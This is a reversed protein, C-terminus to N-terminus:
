PHHLAHAAGLSAASHYPDGGSLRPQLAREGVQLVRDGGAGIELCRNTDALIRSGDRTEYVMDGVSQMESGDQRRVDCGAVYDLGAVLDDSLKVGPQCLGGREAIPVGRHKVKAFRDSFESAAQGAEALERGHRRHLLEDGTVRDIVHVSM